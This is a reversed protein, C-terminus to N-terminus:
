KKEELRKIWANGVLFVIGIIIFPISLCQGMNLVMNHEFDV